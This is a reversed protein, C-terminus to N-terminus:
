SAGNVPLGFSGPCTIIPQYYLNSSKLLTQKLHTQQVLFGFRIFVGLKLYMFSVM